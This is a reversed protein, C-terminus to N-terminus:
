VKSQFQTRPLWTYHFAFQPSWGLHSLASADDGRTMIHGCTQRLVRPLIASGTASLTASKVLTRIYDNSLNRNHQFQPDLFLPTRPFSAKPQTRTYRARWHECFRESLDKLWAPSQPIRLTQERNYYRRGRSRPKRALIVRIKDRGDPPIEVSASALDSTTFGFFLILTIALAQEGNANPDRVFANLQDFQTKSCIVLKEAVRSLHINQTPDLLILKNRKAWSYFAAFRRFTVAVTAYTGTARMFELYCEISPQNALALTQPPDLQSLWYSLSRLISIYRNVSADTRGSKKLIEAFAIVQEATRSDMDELLTDIRHQHEDSRPGLVGMEQLMYGIKMWACGNDHVSKGPARTLPHSRALRYIDHWSRFPQVPTQELYKVLGTTPKLHDYSMRHRRLYTLYLEFLYRNYESAPRIFESQIRDLRVRLLDDQYCLYCRGQVYIKRYAM